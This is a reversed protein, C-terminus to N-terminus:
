VVEANSKLPFGLPIIKGRIVRIFGFLVPDMPDTDAVM